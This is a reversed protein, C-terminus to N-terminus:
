KSLTRSRDIKGTTTYVMSDVEQLRKPIEYPHLIEKLDRFLVNMFATDWKGKEVILVAKEGLSEDPVGTVFFPISPSNSKSFVQEIATEVAEVQIKYGGSNIVNDYRGHWYFTFQDELTVVDNTQIPFDYLPTNIILRSQKDQEFKVAKLAQYPTPEEKWLPRIAVHTLTETMGYTQYVPWQKKQIIQKLSQAVPAGGLILAKLASFFKNTPAEELITEVQLPVMAGFDFNQDQSLGKLPNSNPEVIVMPMRNILGRMLMMFGAVYDVSLCHLLLDGQKLDFAKVTQQVSQQIQSRSFTFTKPPGTSGSTQLRFHPQGLLWNQATKLVKTSYPDLGKTSKVTIKKVDEFDFQQDEIRIWGM